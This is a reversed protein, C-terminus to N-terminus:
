HKLPVIRVNVTYGRINFWFIDRPEPNILTVEGFDEGMDFEHEPEGGRNFPALAKEMKPCPKFLPWTM